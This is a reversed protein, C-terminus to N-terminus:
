SIELNKVRIILEKLTIQPRYYGLRRQTSTSLPVLDNSRGKWTNFHYHKKMAMGEVLMYRWAETDGSQDKIRRTPDIAAAQLKSLKLEEDDIYLNVQEAVFSYEKELAKSHSSLFHAKFDSRWRKRQKRTLQNFNQGMFDFGTKRQIRQLEEVEAIEHM